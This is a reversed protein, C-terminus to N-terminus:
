CPMAPSKPATLRAPVVRYPDERRVSVVEQASLLEAGFRLAQASARRALEAGSVGAPFGLYNEIRSSTGAQGGPAAQEVLLTGLGESAAYVAAALGSPGGGVIVVDYFPRDARTHMGIRDALQHSDPQVLTSGDEFVVVPLRSVDGALDRASPDAEIDLWQYPVGNRSLFEKVRYSQPSLASGVVRIGDYPLRVTAAWDSLLDDLVPYLQQEPPDWPKLLYHDM